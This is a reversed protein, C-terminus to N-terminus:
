DFRIGPTTRDFMSERVGCSPCKPALGPAMKGGCKECKRANLEDQFVLKDREFAEMEAKLEDPEDKLLFATPKSKQYRIYQISDCDECRIEQGRMTGGATARFHHDCSKCIFIGSVGM